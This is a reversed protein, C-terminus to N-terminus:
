KPYMVPASRHHQGLADTVYGIIEVPETVGRGRLQSEFFDVDSLFHMAQGDTIELPPRSIEFRIVPVSLGIAPAEIGAGMVTAPRTHPNAVKFTFKPTEM